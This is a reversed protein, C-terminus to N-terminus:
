AAQSLESWSLPGDTRNRPTPLPNDRLISAFIDATGSGRFARKGSLMEYLILGFSFIDSRADLRKGEIQEPSMYAATGIVAGQETLQESVSRTESLESVPEMLKAFGFDVLKVLGSEDVM